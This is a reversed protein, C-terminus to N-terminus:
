TLAPPHPAQSASQVDEAGDDEVPGIRFGTRRRAAARRRSRMVPGTVVLMPERQPFGAFRDRASITMATPAQAIEPPGYMPRGFDVVARRSQRDVEENGAARGVRHRGEVAQEPEPRM